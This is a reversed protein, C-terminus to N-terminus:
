DTDAPESTRRLHIAHKIGLKLERQTISGGLFNSQLLKNMEAFMERQCKGEGYWGEVQTKLRQLRREPIARVAEAIMHLPDDSNRTVVKGNSDGDLYSFEAAGHDYTVTVQMTSGGPTEYIVAVDTTHERGFQCTSYEHRLNGYAIRRERPHSFSDVFADLRRRFDDLAAPITESV